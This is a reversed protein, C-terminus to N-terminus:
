KHSHSTASELEKRAITVIMESNADMLKYKALAYGESLLVQYKEMAQEHEGYDPLLRAENLLAILLVRRFKYANESNPDEALHKRIIQELKEFTELCLRSDNLDVSMRGLRALEDCVLAIYAEGPVNENAQEYGQISRKQWDIAEKGSGNSMLAQAIYHCSFGQLTFYIGNLFKGSILLPLMVVALIAFAVFVTISTPTRVKM